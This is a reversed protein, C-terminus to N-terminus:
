LFLLRHLPIAKLQDATLVARRLKRHLLEHSGPLHVALFTGDPKVVIDLGEMRVFRDCAFLGVGNRFFKSGLRPRIMFNEDGGMHIGVVDMGM